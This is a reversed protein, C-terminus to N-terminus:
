LVVSIEIRAEPHYPNYLYYGGDVFDVYVDDTYYWDGPWPQVFGFWFGGSQFRSYGKVIRPSEIRFRHESGFNGRFREEPIRSNVHVSLRLAPEARQKEEAQKTRVPQSHQEAKAHEEQKAASAKEEQKAPQVKAEQKVPAAKEEQKAEEQQAFVPALSGMLLFLAGTGMMQITKM